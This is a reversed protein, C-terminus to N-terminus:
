TNGGKLKSWIVVWSHKIIEAVQVYEDPDQEDHACIVTRTVVLKKQIKWQVLRLGGCWFLGLLPMILGVMPAVWWPVETFYPSRSDLKFFNTVMSFCCVVFYIVAPLPSLWPRFSARNKWDLSKRCYALILSGSVVAGLLVVMAYTYIRILLQYQEVPKLKATVAILLVSFFWHLFLAGMPTQERLFGSAQSISGLQGDMLSEKRWHAFKSRLWTYPTTRGAMLFLSFPLIGEKAIEQKVRAATFTNVILNGLINLAILAFMGRKAAENGFLHGFFVSAFDRADWDEGCFVVNKPVILYYSVLLLLYLVYVIGLAFINWFPFNRRAAKVESLVYFPQYFGSWAYTVFLFSYAWDAFDYPKGLAFSEKLRFNDSGLRMSSTSNVIENPRYIGSCNAPTWVGTLNFNKYFLSSGSFHGKGAAKIFGLLIMVTMLCVKFIAFMNNVAIGGRRSFVHVGAALSLAVIAFGVVLGRDKDSKGIAKAFYMGFAVANGALNGLVIFMIGYMSTVLFKPRQYM